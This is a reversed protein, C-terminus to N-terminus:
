LSVYIKGNRECVTEWYEIVHNKIATLCFALHLSLETTRARSNAIFCAKYLRKYLKPLWYLMLLKCHDEEVFVGVNAAM